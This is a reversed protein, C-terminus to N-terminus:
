LIPLVATMGLAFKLALGLLQARTQRERKIEPPGFSAGAVSVYSQLLVRPWSWVAM